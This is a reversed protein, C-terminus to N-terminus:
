SIMVPSVCRQKFPKLGGCHSLMRFENSEFNTLRTKKNHTYLRGSPVLNKEKGRTTQLRVLKCVSIEKCSVVMANSQSVEGLQNPKDVKNLYEPQGDLRSRALCLTQKEKNHQFDVLWGTHCAEVRM